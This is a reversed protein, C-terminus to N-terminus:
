TVDNLTHCRQVKAVASRGLQRTVNTRNQCIRAAVDVVPPLWASPGLYQERVTPDVLVNRLAPVGDPHTQEVFVLGCRERNWERLRHLTDTVIVLKENVDQGTSRYAYVPGRPGDDEWDTSPCLTEAGSMLLAEFEAPTLWRKDVAQRNPLSAMPVFSLSLRLAHNCIHSTDPRRPWAVDRAWM